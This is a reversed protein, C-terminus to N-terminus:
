KPANSTMVSTQLNLQAPLKRANKDAYVRERKKLWWVQSYGHKFAWNRAGEETRIGQTMEPKGIAPPASVIQVKIDKNM